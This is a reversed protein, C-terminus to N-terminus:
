LGVSPITTESPRILDAKVSFVPLPFWLCSHLMLSFLSVVLPIPRFEWSANLHKLKSPEDLVRLVKQSEKPGGPGLLDSDLIPARIWSFPGDSTECSWLTDLDCCGAHIQHHGEM